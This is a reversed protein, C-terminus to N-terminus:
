AVKDDISINKLFNDLKNKTKLILLIYLCINFYKTMNERKEDSSFNKWEDSKTKDGSGNSTHRFYGNFNREMNKIAKEDFYYEKLIEKESRFVYSIKVALNVMVQEKDELKISSKFKRFLDYVNTNDIEDLIISEETNEILYWGKNINIKYGRNELNNLKTKLIEISELLSNYFIDEFLNEKINKINLDVIYQSIIIGDPDYNRVYDKWKIKKLIKLYINIKDILSLSSTKLWESFNKNNEFCGCSIDVYVKNINLKYYGDSFHNIIKNILDEIYVFLKELYENNNVDRKLINSLKDSMM